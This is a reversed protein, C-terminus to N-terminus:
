RDAQPLLALRRARAGPSPGPEERSALAGLVATGALRRYLVHRPWFRRWFAYLGFAASGCLAWLVLGLVLMPGVSGFARGSRWYPIRPFDPPCAGRGTKARKKAQVAFRSQHSAYPLASNPRTETLKRGFSRAAWTAGFSVGSVQSSM